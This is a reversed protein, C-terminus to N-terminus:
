IINLKKLTFSLVMEDQQFFIKYIKPSDLQGLFQQYLLYALSLKPMGFIDTLIQWIFFMFLDSLLNM